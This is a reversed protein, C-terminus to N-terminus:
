HLPRSRKLHHLKESLRMHENVSASVFALVAIVSMFIGFYKLTTSGNQIFNYTSGSLYYNLSANGSFYYGIYYLCAGFALLMVAFIVLMKTFVLMAFVVM